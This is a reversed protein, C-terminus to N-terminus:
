TRACTSCDSGTCASCGNGPARTSRIPVPMARREFAARRARPDRGRLAARRGRTRRREVGCRRPSLRRCVLGVVGHRGAHAVDNRSASSRADFAGRADLAAARRVGRTRLAYWPAANAPFENDCLLVEDGERWDIGQAVISAGISTSPIMAIEAGKAGIFGAIRERFEPMREDYPWTGFVGAQAHARLLEDLAEVSSRPLIGVAAHNLYALRETVTFEGRPLPTSM